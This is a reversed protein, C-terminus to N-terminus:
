RQVETYDFSVSQPFQVKTQVMMFLVVNCPMSFDVLFMSVGCSCLADSIFSVYSM